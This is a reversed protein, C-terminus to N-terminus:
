QLYSFWSAEVARFNAAVEKKGTIITGHGPLLYNVDLRSLREISARLLSGNGGPLDTRGIGRSFIVDGTFLAKKEEWYLSVSGPSHGPTAIVQLRIDGVILDGEALFFNPEPLTFYHGVTKEFFRYEEEGMAFMTPVEIAQVAELHDPHGHTAIVLDIDEMSYGLGDLGKRVHSFLRKHGPDILVTKSGDILYANCNNTTIDRWLFAHLKDVIKM